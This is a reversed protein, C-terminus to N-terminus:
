KRFSILFLVIWIRSCVLTVANGNKCVGFVIDVSLLNIILDGLRESQNLSQKRQIYICEYHEYSCKCAFMISWSAEYWRYYFMVWETLSIMFCLANSTYHHLMIFARMICQPQRLKIGRFCQPHLTWSYGHADM